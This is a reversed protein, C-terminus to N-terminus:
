PVDGHFAETTLGPVEGGDWSSRPWGPTQRVARQIALRSLSSIWRAGLAEAVPVERSEAIEPPRAIPEGAVHELLFAFYVDSQVPGIVKHRVLLLCGVRPTVGSEEEFERIVATELSEGPDVFGSPITFRDRYVARNVLV